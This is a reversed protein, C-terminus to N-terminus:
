FPNIIGNREVELSLYVEKSQHIRFPEENEM